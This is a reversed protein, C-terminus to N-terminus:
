SLRFHTALVKKLDTDDSMAGRLRGPEGTPLIAPMRRGITGCAGRRHRRTTPKWEGRITRKSRIDFEALKLL